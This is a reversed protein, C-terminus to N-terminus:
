TAINASVADNFGVRSAAVVMISKRSRGALSIAPYRAPANKVLTVIPRTMTKVSPLELAVRETWCVTLGSTSM